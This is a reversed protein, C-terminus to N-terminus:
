SVIIPMIKLLKSDIITFDVVKKFSFTIRFAMDQGDM